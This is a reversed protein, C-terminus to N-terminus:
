DYAPLNFFIFDLNKKLLGSFEACISFGVLALIILCGNCVPVSNKVIRLLLRLGAVKNFFLSRYLHKGTFKAFNRLVDKKVSCRRQSSRVYFKQKEFFYTHCSVICLFQLKGHLIEETKTCHFSNINFAIYAAAPRHNYYTLFIGLFPLSAHRFVPICLMRM